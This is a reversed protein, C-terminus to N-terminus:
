GSDNPITFTNLPVNGFHSQCGGPQKNVASGSSSRSDDEESDGRRGGDGGEWGPTIGHWGFGRKEDEKWGSIEWFDGGLRGVKRKLFFYFDRRKLRYM